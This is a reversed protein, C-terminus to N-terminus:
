GFCNEGGNKEEFEMNKERRRKGFGWNLKGLFGQLNKVNQNIIIQNSNKHQSWFGKITPITANQNSQAM